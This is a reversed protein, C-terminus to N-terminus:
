ATRALSWRLCPAEIAPVGPSKPAGPNSANIASAAAYPALRRPSRGNNRKAWEIPENAAWDTIRVWESCYAPTTREPLM